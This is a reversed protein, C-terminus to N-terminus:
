SGGPFHALLHGAHPLLLDPAAEELIPRPGYESEVAITFSGVTRGMQIDEPRDGVYAAATPERDIQELARQLPAPHPKKHETDEYCVVAEFAGRLEFRELEHEVRSRNAATVLGLVYGAERLAELMETAFPFLEKEQQHYTDRWLADARDWHEEPVGLQRYSDLWNPSYTSYFRERDMDIGFHAYVTMSAHYGASFSNLLTGDWDFLIARVRAKVSVLTAPDAVLMWCGTVAPRLRSGNM